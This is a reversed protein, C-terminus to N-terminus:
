IQHGFTLVNIRIKLKRIHKIDITKIGKFDYSLWNLKHTVM